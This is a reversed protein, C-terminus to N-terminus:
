STTYARYRCWQDRNCAFAAPENPTREYRIWEYEMKRAFAAKVSVNSRRNLILSQMQIWVSEHVHLQSVFWVRSIELRYYNEKLILSALDDQRSFFSVKFLFLVDVWKEFLLIKFLSYTYMDSVISFLFRTNCNSLPIKEHFTAIKLRMTLRKWQWSSFSSYTHFFFSLVRSREADDWASIYWHIYWYIKQRDRGVVRGIKNVFGNSCCFRKEDRSQDRPINEFLIASPRRRKGVLCSFEIRRRTAKAPKTCHTDAHTSYWEAFICTHM